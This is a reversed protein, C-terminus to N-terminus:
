HILFVYIVILIGQGSEYGDQLWRTLPSSSYKCVLIDVSPPHCHIVEFLYSFFRNWCCNRTWIRLWRLFPSSSCKCGLIDVSSRHCHVVELSNSVFENWCCNRSRIHLWRILPSSSCKCGLIDINELPM